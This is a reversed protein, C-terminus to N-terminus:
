IWGSGERSGLLGGCFVCCRQYVRNESIQRCWLLTGKGNIVEGCGAFGGKDWPQSALASLVSSLQHQVAMPLSQSGERQHPNLPVESSWGDRSVAGVAGLWHWGLSLRDGAQITVVVQLFSVNAPSKRGAPGKLLVILESSAYKYYVGGSM